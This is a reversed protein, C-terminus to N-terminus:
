PMLLIVTWKCLLMTLGVAPKCLTHWCSRIVTEKCQHSRWWCQLVIATVINIGILFLNTWQILLFFIFEHCYYLNAYKWSIKRDNIVARFGTRRSASLGLGQRVPRNKVSVAQYVNATRCLKSLKFILMLYRVYLFLTGHKDFTVLHDIGISIWSGPTGKSIHILKFGLM